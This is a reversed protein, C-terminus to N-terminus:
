FRKWGLLRKSEWIFHQHDEGSGMEERADLGFCMNIREVELYQNRRAKLVVKHAATSARVLWEIITFHGTFNDGYKLEYEIDGSDCSSSAATRTIDVIITELNNRLTMKQVNFRLPFVLKIYRIKLLDPFKKRNLVDQNWFTISANM